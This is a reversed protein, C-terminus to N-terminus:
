PRASEAATAIRRAAVFRPRGTLDDHESVDGFVRRGRFLEAAAAGNADDHEVAVVGDTRLWRAANAVIPRIVDLGDRGGFVSGPPDHEAVEVDLAAGCPVYPPNAVVVDVGGELATLLTRDTVDGGVLHVPTDGARARVDSNHRAWALAVPDCEVAYVTSEPREHAIALALAASGTCLDLVVPPRQRAAAAGGVAMVSMAWELLMETEPRPVFVGPGVAIDIRGMPASGVIHQLPDRNCRRDVLRGFAALTAEDVLPVLGLRPRTTGIVHAALIEADARPHPVGAGSLREFADAIALRM